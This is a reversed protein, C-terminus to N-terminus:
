RAWTDKTILETADAGGTGQHRGFGACSSRVWTANAYDYHSTGNPPFHM